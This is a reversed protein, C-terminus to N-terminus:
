TSPIAGEGHVPQEEAPSDSAEVPVLIKEPAHEIVDATLSSICGLLGWWVVHLQDFYTVSFVTVVHAFLACGVCWILGEIPLANDRAVQLARGLRSFCWVLLLILFVLAALGGQAASSVYLNCLDAGGWVM